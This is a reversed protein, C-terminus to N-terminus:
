FNRGVEPSNMIKMMLKLRTSIATITQKSRRSRWELIVGILYVVNQRRVKAAKHKCHYNWWDM